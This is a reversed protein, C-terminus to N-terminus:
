SAIAADTLAFTNQAEDLAAVTQYAVIDRSEPCNLSAFEDASRGIQGSVMHLDPTKPDDIDCRNKPDPANTQLLAQIQNYREAVPMVQFLNVPDPKLLFVVFNKPDM